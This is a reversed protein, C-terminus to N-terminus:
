KSILMYNDQLPKMSSSLNKLRSATADYVELWNRLSSQSECIDGDRMLYSCSYESRDSDPLMTWAETMELIESRMYGGYQDADPRNDTIQLATVKEGVIFIQTVTEWSECVKDSNDRIEWDVIYEESAPNSYGIRDSLFAVVEKAIAFDKFRPVVYTSGGKMKWYNESVGPVFDENHAAYNERYQTHIVLKM